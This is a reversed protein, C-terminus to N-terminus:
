KCWPAIPCLKRLTSTFAVLDIVREDREGAHNAMEQLLLQLNRRALENADDDSISEVRAESTLRENGRKIQEAFASEASADLVYGITALAEKVSSISADRIEPVRIPSGSTTM